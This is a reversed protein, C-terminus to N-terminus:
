FEIKMIHDDHHDFAADKWKPPGLRASANNSFAFPETPYGIFNRNLKKDGNLDQFFAIAYEGKPLHIHHTFTSEGSTQIEFSHSVDDGLFGQKKNYVGIFITTEHQPTLGSFHLELSINKQAIVPISILPLLFTFISIKFFNELNFNIKMNQKQNTKDTFVRTEPIFQLFKM